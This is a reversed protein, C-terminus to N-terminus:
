QDFLDDKAGGAVGAPVTAVDEAGVTMIEGDEGAEGPPILRQIQNRLQGKKDGSQIAEVVVVGKVIKGCMLDTDTDLPVNFAAYLEKMKFLAKESLSTNVWIRKDNAPGNPQVIEFEWVWYPGKPGEGDTRVDRLRLPYIGPDAPTFDQVEAAETKAQLDKNLKAM